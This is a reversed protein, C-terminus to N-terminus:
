CVWGQWQSQIISNRLLVRPSWDLNALLVIIDPFTNRAGNDQSGTYSLHWQPRSRGLLTPTLLILKTGALPKMLFPHQSVNLLIWHWSLMQTFARGTMKLTEMFFLDCMMVLSQKSWFHTSPMGMCMLWFPKLGLQALFQQLPRTERVATCNRGKWLADSSVCLVCTIM